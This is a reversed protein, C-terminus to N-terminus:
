GVLVSQACRSAELALLAVIVMIDDYGCHGDVSVVMLWCRSESQMNAGDSVDWEVHNFDKKIM